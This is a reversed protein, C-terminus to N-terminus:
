FISKWLLIAWNEKEVSEGAILDITAQKKLDPTLYQENPGTLEMTGLKQGKKIPAILSEENLHLKGKIVQDAAKPTMVCSPGAADLSVKEKKGDKVGPKQENALLYDAPQVPKCEWQKFGYDLLKKTEMFRAKSSPKGEKNEAGIVVSILERDGRKAHATFGYGAAENRGTKMGLIGEYSYKGGPLMENTNIMEIVQSDTVYFAKKKITEVALEKPFEKTLHYALLALDKASMHNEDNPKTGQVEYPHIDQNNLGSTNVFHSHSLRLQKAKDNMMQVFQQDTKGAMEGLARSSANASVIMMSDYLEKLTYEEGEYIPINSLGAKTSLAQDITKAKYVDNWSLKGTKIQELVIYQTMMKSMSAIPLSQDANKHYLIKGTKVDILIAAKARVDFPTNAFSSKPLMVMMLVMCLFISFWKRYHQKM